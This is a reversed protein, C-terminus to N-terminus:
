LAMVVHRGAEQAVVAVGHHSCCGQQALEEKSANQSLLQDCSIEEAISGLSFLLFLALFLHKM